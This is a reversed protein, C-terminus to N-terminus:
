DEVPTIIKDLSCVICLESKLSPRVTSDDYEDVDVISGLSLLEYTSLEVTDIPFQSRIARFAAQDNPQQFVPFLQSGLTDYIAYLKM